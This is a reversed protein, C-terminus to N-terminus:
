LFIFGALERGPRRDEILRAGKFYTDTHWQQSGPKFEVSYGDEQVIQILLKILVEGGVCVEPEDGRSRGVRWKIRAREFEAIVRAKEIRIMQLHDRNVVAEIFKDRM